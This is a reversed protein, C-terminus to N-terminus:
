FLWTSRLGAFLAGKDERRLMVVGPTVFIGDGINFQTSIELMNPELSRMDDPAARAAKQSAFGIRSSRGLGIVWGAQSGDPKPFAAVGWQVDKFSGTSISDESSSAWGHFALGGLLNLAFMAGIRRSAGSIDTSTNAISTTSNSGEATQGDMTQSTTASVSPPRAQSSVQSMNLENSPDTIIGLNSFPKQELMIIGLSLAKLPAVAAQLLMCDRDGQAQSSGSGDSPQSFYAFSIWARKLSAMAGVVGGLVNQHLPNGHRISSILGQGDVPNLTYAVDKGRAGFPSMVARFGPSIEHNYIVRQLAFDESGSDVKIDSGVFDRGGRVPKQLRLMMETGLRVGVDQMSQLWSAGNPSNEEDDWLLGGGVELSGHIPSDSSADNAGSLTSRAAPIWSRTSTAENTISRSKDNLRTADPNMEMPVVGTVAELENLRARVKVLEAFAERLLRKLAPVEETDMSDLSSAALSGSDEESEKNKQYIGFIALIAAAALALMWANGSLREGGDEGGSSYGDGSGGHGGGKGGDKPTGADGGDDLVDNTQLPPDSPTGAPDPSAYARLSSVKRIASIRLLPNAFYPRCNHIPSTLLFNAGYSKSSLDDLLFNSQRFAGSSLRTMIVNAETATPGRRCVHVNVSKESTINLFQIRCIFYSSRVRSKYTPMVQSEEKGKRWGRALPQLVEGEKREKGKKLESSTDRGHERRKAEM